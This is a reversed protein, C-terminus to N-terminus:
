KILTRFLTVANGNVSATNSTIYSVKVYRSTIFATDLASSFFNSTSTSNTFTKTWSTKANGKLIPTYNVNDESQTFVATITATGSGVKTWNLQGGLDVNNTHQIALTYNLTDSVGLSDGGTPWTSKTLVAQGQTVVLPGFNRAQSFVSTAVFFTLLFSLIHKM